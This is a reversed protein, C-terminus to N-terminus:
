TSAATCCAMAIWTPKSGLQRAAKSQLRNLTTTDFYQYILKNSLNTYKYIYINTHMGASCIEKCHIQIQSCPVSDAFTRQNEHWNNYIHKRPSCIREVQWFTCTDIVYRMDFAEDACIVAMILSDSCCQLSATQLQWMTRCCKSRVCWLSQFLACQSKCKMPPCVLPCAHKGSDFQRQKTRWCRDGM